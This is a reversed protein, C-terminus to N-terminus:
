VSDSFDANLAQIILDPNLSTIGDTEEIEEEEIEEQEEEEEEGGGEQAGDVGGEVVEPAIKFSGSDEELAVYITPYEIVTLRKLNTQLPHNTDLRDYCVNHAPLKERRMFFAVKGMAKTYKRLIYRLESNTANPQLIDDLSKVISVNDAVKDSVHTVHQELSTFVWKVKWYIVDGKIDFYSTNEIRRSMGPAMLHLNVGRKRAEDYFKQVRPPMERVAASGGGGGGRSEGKFVKRKKHTSDLIREASESARTVEEIFHYDTISPSPHYM